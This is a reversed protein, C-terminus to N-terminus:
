RAQELKSACGICLTASPDHEIRKSAIREDCERCLGFDDNELRTLAVEIKKLRIQRRRRTEVSMAQAQMADMRSLRGMRTQDLEVTAAADAGSQQTQNLEDRQATLTARLADIDLPQETM